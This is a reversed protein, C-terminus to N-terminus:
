SYQSRSHAPAVASSFDGGPKAEARWKPGAVANVPLLAAIQPLLLALVVFLDYYAMSLAAGGVFFALLSTQIMRALRHQWLDKLRRTRRIISWCYKFTALIIALYIGLGIFGHEGLV